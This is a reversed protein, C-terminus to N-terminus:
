CIKSVSYSKWVRLAEKNGSRAAIHIPTNGDRNRFDLCAGGSVLALMVARPRMLTTALSLPTETLIICFLDL